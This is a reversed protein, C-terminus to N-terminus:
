LYVSEIKVVCFAYKIECFVDNASRAMACCLRQQEQGHEAWTKIHQVERPGAIWEGFPQAM